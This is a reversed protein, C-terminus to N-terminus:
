RGDNPCSVRGSQELAYGIDTNEINRQPLKFLGSAPPEGYHSFNTAFMDQIRIASERDIGAAAMFIGIGITSYDRYETITHAGDVRQADLNGAIALHRFEINLALSTAIMADNDGLKLALLMAQYLPAAALGACAFRAPDLSAPRIVPQGDPGIVPDGNDDVLPVPRHPSDPPLEDVSMRPHPGFLTDTISFASSSTDKPRFQGGQGDPAGAPWGLHNPDDPSAKAFAHDSRCRASCSAGLAVAMDHISQLSHDARSGAPPQHRM